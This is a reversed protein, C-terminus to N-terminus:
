GNEQIQTKLDSPKTFINKKTKKKFINKQEESKYETTNFVNSWLLLVLYPLEAETCHEM